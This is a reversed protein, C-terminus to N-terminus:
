RVCGMTKFTHPFHPSVRKARCSFVGSDAHNRPKHHGWLSEFGSQVSEEGARIRNFRGEGTPTSARRINPLLAFGGPKGFPGRASHADNNGLVRHWHDQSALVFDRYGGVTAAGRDDAVGDAL